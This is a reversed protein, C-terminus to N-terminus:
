WLLIGLLVTGLVACAIGLTGWIFCMTFQWVADDGDVQDQQDRQQWALANQKNSADAKSRKMCDKDQPISTGKQV